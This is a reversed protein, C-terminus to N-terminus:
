SDKPKLGFEKAYYDLNKLKYEGKKRTANELSKILHLIYKEIFGAYFWGFLLIIFGAIFFYLHAYSWDNSITLFFPSIILMIGTQYVLHGMSSQNDLYKNRSEFELNSLYYWFREADWHSISKYGDKYRSLNRAVKALLDERPEIFEFNDKIYVRCSKTRHLDHSWRIFWTHLLVKYISYFIAGFAFAFLPLVVAGLEKILDMVLDKGWVGSFYLIILPEVGIVLYRLADSISIDKMKNVGINDTTENVKDGKLLLSKRKQLTM